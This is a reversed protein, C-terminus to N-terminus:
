RATRRRLPLTMWVGIVAGALAIASIAMLLGKRTWLSDSILKVPGFEHLGAIAARVRTLASSRILRLDKEAVYYSASGEGEFRLEYVPLSGWSYDRVYGDLRRIDALPAKVKFNRRIIDEALEPTFSFYEGTMANVLQEDGNELRIAYLVDDNIQRLQVNVVKAPQGNHREMSVIAEAPSIAVRRFDAPPNKHYATPGFWYAPMAMFLGSLLWIVIFIGALNFIWRHLTRLQRYDM